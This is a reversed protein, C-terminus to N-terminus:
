LDIHLSKGAFEFSHTIILIHLCVAFNTLSRSSIKIYSHTHLAPWHWPHHCQSMFPFSTIFFKLIDVAAKLRRIYPATEHSRTLNWSRMIYRSAAFTLDIRSKNLIMIQPGCKSTVWPLVSSFCFKDQEYMSRMWEWHVFRNMWINEGAKNQLHM